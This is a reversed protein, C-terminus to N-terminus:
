ELSAIIVDVKVRVLDAALGSSPRDGEAMRDEIV